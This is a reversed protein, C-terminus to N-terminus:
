TVQDTIQNPQERMAEKEIMFPAELPSECFLERVMTLLGLLALTGLGIALAAVVLLRM